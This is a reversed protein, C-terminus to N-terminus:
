VHECLFEGLNILAFFHSQFYKSFLGQFYFKNEKTHLKNYKLAIRLAHKDDEVVRLFM